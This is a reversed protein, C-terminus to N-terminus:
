KENWNILLFRKSAISSSLLPVILLFTSQCSFTDQIKFKRVITLRIKTCKECCYNTQFSSYIKTGKETKKKETPDVDGTKISFSKQRQGCSRRVKLLLVEGCSCVHNVFLNLQSASHM